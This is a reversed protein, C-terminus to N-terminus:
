FLRASCKTCMWRFRSRRLERFQKLRRKLQKLEANSIDRTEFVLRETNIDGDDEPVLLAISTLRTAIESAGVHKLVEQFVEDPFSGAFRLQYTTM